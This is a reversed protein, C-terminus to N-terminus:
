STSSGTWFACRDSAGAQLRKVSRFLCTSDGANSSRENPDDERLGASLGAMRVPLAPIDWVRTRASGTWKMTSECFHPLRHRKLHHKWWCRRRPRSNAPEGYDSM